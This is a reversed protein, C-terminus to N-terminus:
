SKKLDQTSKLQPLMCVPATEGTSKSRSHSISYSSYSAGGRLSVNCVVAGVVRAGAMALRDCLHRASGVDSYGVLSSLVVSDVAQSWITADATGLAPSSDVVVFDYDRTATQILRGVTNQDVQHRPTADGNLGGLLVDLNPLRSSVAAKSLEKEGSLVHRLRGPGDLSLLNGIRPAQIDGDVLLVRGGLEALSVALSVALSTKGEGAHASTVLISKPPDGLAPSLLNVRVLRYAEAFDEQAIRGRKLESIAPVVGLIRLGTESEVQDPVYVCRDFRGRLLGLGLAAFLCGAVAAGTLKIRKDKVGEPGVEAPSSKSVRGSGPQDREVELKRRADEVEALDKRVKEMDEQISNIDINARGMEQSDKLQADTKAQLDDRDAEAAQLRAELDALRREKLTDALAQQSSNYEEFADVRAKKVAEKLAELREEAEVILPPRADKALGSKLRVLNAAETRIQEQLSRVTPDNEIAETRRVPDEDAGVANGEKVRAIERELNRIEADIPGRAELLQQARALKFERLSEFMSDTTASHKEALEQKRKQYAQLQNDLATEQTRLFKLKEDLEASGGYRLLYSDMIADALALAAGRDPDTVQVTIITTKPIIAVKLNEKVKDYLDPDKAQPLAKVKPDALAAQIVAPNQIVQACTALFSDFMPITQTQSDILTGRTPEVRIQATATYEPKLLLWIPPIALATLVVWAFVVLKWHHRLAILLNAPGPSSEQAAAVDGGMVMSDVPPPLERTYSEGAM